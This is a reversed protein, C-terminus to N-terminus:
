FGYEKPLGALYLAKKVRGYGASCEWLAVDHSMAKIFIMRAAFGIAACIRTFIAM